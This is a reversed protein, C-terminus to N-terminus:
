EEAMVPAGVVADSGPFTANIMSADLIGPQWAARDRTSFPKLRAKCQVALLPHRVDPAASNNM